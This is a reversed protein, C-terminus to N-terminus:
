NLKQGLDSRAINPGIPRKGFITQVKISLLEMCRNTSHGLKVEFEITASSVNRTDSFM